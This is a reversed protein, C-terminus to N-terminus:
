PSSLISHVTTSRSRLKIKQLHYGSSHHNHLLHHLHDIRSHNDRSQFIIVALDLITHSVEFYSLTLTSSTFQPNQLQFTASNITPLDKSNFQTRNLHPPLLADHRGERWPFHVINPSWPVKQMLPLSSIGQSRGGGM